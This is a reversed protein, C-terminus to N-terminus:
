FPDPFCKGLIDVWGTKLIDLHRSVHQWKVFFQFIILFHGLLGFNLGLFDLVIDYFHPFNILFINQWFISKHEIKM